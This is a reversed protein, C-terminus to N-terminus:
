PPPRASVVSDPRVAPAARSGLMM